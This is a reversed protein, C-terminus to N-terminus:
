VNYRIRICYSNQAPRFSLKPLGGSVVLSREAYLYLDHEVHLAFVPNDHSDLLPSRLAM